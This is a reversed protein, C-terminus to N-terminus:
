VFIIEQLFGQERSSFTALRGPRIVRTAAAFHRGNALVV